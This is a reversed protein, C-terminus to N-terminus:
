VAGFYDADTVVIHPIVAEREQSMERWHWLKERRERLDYPNRAKSRGEDVSQRFYREGDLYCGRWEHGPTPRDYHSASNPNPLMARPNPCLVPAHVLWPELGARVLRYALEPDGPGRMRDFHEDAGGVVLFADTPASENKTHFYDPLIPGEPMTM